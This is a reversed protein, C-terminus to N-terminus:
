RLVSALRFIGLPLSRLRVRVYFQEIAPDLDGHFTPGSAEPVLCIVARYDCSMANLLNVLHREAGGIGLSAIIHAVRLAM